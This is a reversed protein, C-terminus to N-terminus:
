KPGIEAEPEIRGIRALLVDRAASAAHVAENSGGRDPHVKALLRRHAEAIEIRTAGRGLGLLGRAQAEKQSRESNRWLAWPWNGTLARCAVCALAALVLLKGM